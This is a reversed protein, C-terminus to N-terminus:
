QPMMPMQVSRTISSVPFFTFSSTGALSYTVQVSIFQTSSVTPTTITITPNTGSVTLNENTLEAKVM